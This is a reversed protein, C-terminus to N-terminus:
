AQKSPLKTNREVMLHKNKEQTQTRSDLSNRPATPLWLFSSRSICCVAATCWQEARIQVWFLSCIKLTLGPMLLPYLPRSVTTFSFVVPKSSCCCSLVCSILASHNWKKGWRKSTSRTSNTCHTLSDMNVMSKGTGASGWCNSSFKVFQSSLAYLQKSPAPTTQYSVQGSM